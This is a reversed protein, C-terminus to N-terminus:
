VDLLNLRNRKLYHGLVALSWLAKWHTQKTEFNVILQRMSSDPVKLLDSVFTAGELVFYKLPGRIWADMPLEFGMKKRDYVSVPLLDICAQVLLNKTWKGQKLSAPLSIAYEVLRHDLFPVRLELSVAMSMQDSDRLLMDRMYGSVEACSIRAFDDMLMQCGEPPEISPVPLGFNSLMPGTWNRRWWRDFVSANPTQPVDTFLTRGKGTCRNLFDWIGTPCVGMWKLLPLMQFQPYGGFLEDGGLGSLAVKYGAGRIAKSVIFTNVADMSPMDMKGVAETISEIVESETLQVHHHDTLYKLAVEKAISTEDFGEEQFGVSFTAIGSGHKQAALATIISSDIGGSLLCATPVDSLLHEEVSCELLGRVKKQVVDHSKARPLPRFHSANWFKSWKLHGDERCLLSSGAPLELIGDHILNGDPCCGHFLFRSVGLRSVGRNQLLLPRVESSFRLSQCQGPRTSFADQRSGQLGEISLYLPKIGFRDRVLWLSASKKSYLAFAFMGRLRPLIDEGWVAYGKLLTETDSHGSFQQGLLTLEARIDLHNYIEGNFAIANGTAPDVMPQSGSDSLDLISLRTHGLWMDEDPSEWYGCSDPGRHSLMQIAAMQSGSNFAWAGIIGCM